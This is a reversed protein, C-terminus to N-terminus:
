NDISLYNSNLDVLRISNQAISATSMAVLLIFIYNKM